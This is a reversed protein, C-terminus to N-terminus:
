RNLLLQKTERYSPTQLVIFFVGNRLNFIDIDFENKGIKNSIEKEFLIRGVMDYIRFYSTQLEILDFEVNLSNSSEKLTLKMPQTTSNPNILRKGGEYCIGLLTFIGDEIKVDSVGGVAQMNKLILNSNDANGLGVKFKVNAIPNTQIQLNELKIKATQDDIIESVYELPELLTPNFVLEGSFGSIGAASLNSNSVLEIPINVIDNPYAEASSVKFNSYAVSPIGKVSAESFITCPEVKFSITTKVTDQNQPTFKISLVKSKKAEIFLPFQNGNIAFPSNISPIENIWIDRNGTNKITLNADKSQSLYCVIQIDDIEVIPKEIIGTLVVNSISGCLSDIISINEFFVGEENIGNFRFEIFDSENSNISLGNKIFNVNSNAEAYVGIKLTGINSIFLTTDKTENPCLSGLDIITVDPKFAINDKHANFEITIVSDPVSNSKIDLLFSKLGSNSPAFQIKINQSKNPEIIIPMIENVVFDNPNNGKKILEKIILNQDGVNTIELDTFSSNECILNIIDQKKYAIKPDKNIGEGFLQVLAPSGVGNYYFELIGSTLGSISPTFRLNMKCTDGPQMIFNGGGSITSFDYDNPKNHRTETITLPANGINKITIANLTDKNTNVIVQGFDILKELVLIQPAIGEGQINRYLTDFQTRIVIEAYHMGVRSPKFRFEGIETSGVAVEYRPIGSVLSFAKADAGRFYISDIGIKWLGTNRIFGDVVSDKISGVLCQKMDVSMAEAEPVVISWVADSVDSQIQSHLSVFLIQFVFIIIVLLKM